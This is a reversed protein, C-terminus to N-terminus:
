FERAWKRDSVLFIFMIVLALSFKKTISHHANPAVTASPNVMITTPQAYTYAYGPSGAPVVYAQQPPYGGRPPVQSVPITSATFPSADPMTAPTDPDPSSFSSPYIATPSQASASTSTTQYAAEMNALKSRIKSAQLTTAGILHLMNNSSLTQLQVGNVVSFYLHFLQSQLPKRFFSM